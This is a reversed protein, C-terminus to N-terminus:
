HSGLILGVAIVVVRNVVLCAYLYICLYVVHTSVHERM